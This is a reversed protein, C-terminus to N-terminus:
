NVSRGPMLPEACKPGLRPPHDTPVPIGEITTVIKTDLADKLICKAGRGPEKEFKRRREFLKGPVLSGNTFM